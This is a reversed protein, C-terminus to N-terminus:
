EGAPEPTTASQQERQYLEFVTGSSRNVGQGPKLVPTHDMGPWHLRASGDHRLSLESDPTDPTVTRGNLWALRRGDSGTLLGNFILQDVREVQQAQQRQDDVMPQKGARIDDIRQREAPSSFLRGLNDAQAHLSFSFISIWLFFAKM